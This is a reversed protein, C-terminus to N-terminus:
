SIELTELMALNELQPQVFYGLVYDVRCNASLTLYEPGSIKSAITQAGHKGSVEIINHM